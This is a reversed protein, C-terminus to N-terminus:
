SPDMLEGAVFRRSMETRPHEFFDATAQEEVIQGEVLLMTRDGIQRAYEVSHTVMVVTLGINRRLDAITELLRQSATPDLASTPEDLLLVEPRNVLARAIAVRQQQGVSLQDASRHLFGRSLGVQELLEEFESEMRSAKPGRRLRLPILLNELVTGGLMVPTQFVLSVMCRLRTVEYDALSRGDLLITGESPDELRNLLRLLTSKGSGSPGIITYIEQPQIRLNIDKLITVEVTRDGQHQQKRKWVHQIEIKSASRRDDPTM